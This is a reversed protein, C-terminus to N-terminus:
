KRRRLYHVTKRKSRKAHRKRHTRNRRVGGGGMMTADLAVKQPNVVNKVLQKLEKVELGTTSNLDAESGYGKLTDNLEKVNMKDIEENTPRPPSLLQRTPPPPSKTSSQSIPPLNVTIEPSLDAMTAPTLNTDIIKRDISKLGINPNDFLIDYVVSNIDRSLGKQQVTGEEKNGDIMVSVKTGNKLEMQRSQESKPQRLSQYNTDLPLSRGRESIESLVFKKTIDSPKVNFNGDRLTKILYFGNNVDISIIEGIGELGENNKKFYVIDKIKYTLKNSSPKSNGFIDAV